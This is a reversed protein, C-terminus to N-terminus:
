NRVGEFFYFAAEGIFFPKGDVIGSPSSYKEYGISAIYRLARGCSCKRHEAETMWVPPGLVRIFAEGGVFTDCAKWYSSEDRPIEDQIIPRLTLSKEELPNPFKDDDSLSFSPSGQRDILHVARSEPYIQFKQPSLWIDCNIYSCLPIEDARLVSLEGLQPDKLDLVILLTPGGCVLDADELRWSNGGFRHRYTGNGREAIMGDLNDLHPGFKNEKSDSMNDSAVM